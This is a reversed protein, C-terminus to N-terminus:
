AKVGPNEMQIWGSESSPTSAQTVDPWLKKIDEIVSATFERGSDSQLIKAPGFTCFIEVIKM